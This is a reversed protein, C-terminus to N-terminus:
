YKEILNDDNESSAPKISALLHMLKDSSHCLQHAVSYFYPHDVNFFGLYIRKDSLLNFSYIIESLFNNVRGCTSECLLRLKKKQNSVKKNSAEATRTEYFWFSASFRRTVTIGM